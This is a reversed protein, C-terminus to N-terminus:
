GAQTVYYGLKQEKHTLKEWGPIQYRLIKIDAFEEVNFNFATEVKPEEQTTLKEAKDNGCSWLLTAVFAASLISKLKM